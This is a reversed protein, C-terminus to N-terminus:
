PVLLAETGLNVWGNWVALTGILVVTGVAFVLYNLPNALRKLQNVQATM